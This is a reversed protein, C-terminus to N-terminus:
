LLPLGMVLPLDGLRPPHLALDLDSTVRSAQIRVPRPTNGLLLKEAPLLSSLLDTALPFAAARLYYVGDAVDSLLYHGPGPAELRTCRVPKGQPIPSGFLGVYITGQFTAPADISGFIQHRGPVNGPVGETDLPRRATLARPVPEFAQARQRLQRPSVGVRQTFRSTFTGPSTFGVEFCIDTSTLSTMLLLQRARQFRLATLYEVPPTGILRRFVRSFHAPSQCAVSALDELTLVEQLHTQM